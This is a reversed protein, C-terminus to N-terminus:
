IEINLKAKKIQTKMDKIFNDKISEQKILLNENKQSIKKMIAHEIERSEYLKTKYLHLEGFMKNLKNFQSSFPNFIKIKDKTDNIKSSDKEQSMDETEEPNFFKKELKYDDM